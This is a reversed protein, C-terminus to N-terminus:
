LHSQVSLSIQYKKCISRIPGRLRLPFCHALPLTKAELVLWIVMVFHCDYESAVICVIITRWSVSYSTAGIRSRCIQDLCIWVSICTQQLVLKTSCIGQALDSGETRRGSKCLFVVWFLNPLLPDTVRGKWLRAAGCLDLESTVPVHCCRATTIVPCMPGTDVDSHSSLSCIYICFRIYTYVHIYTYVRTYTCTHIAYM